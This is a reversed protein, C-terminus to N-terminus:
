KIALKASITIIRTFSHEAILGYLRSLEMKVCWFKGLAVTFNSGFQDAIKGMQKAVGCESPTYYPWLSIGGWDGMFVFRLENETVSRVLATKIFFIFILARTELVAVM